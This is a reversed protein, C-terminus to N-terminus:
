PLMRVSNDKENRLQEQLELNEMESTGVRRRLTELQGCLQEVYLCFVSM